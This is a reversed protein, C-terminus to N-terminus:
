LSYSSLSLSLQHTKWWRQSGALELGFCRHIVSRSWRHCAASITCPSQSLFIVHRACEVNQLGCVCAWFVFLSFFSSHCPCIVWPFLIFWDFASAMVWKEWFRETAGSAQPRIRGYFYSYCEFFIKSLRLRNSCCIASHSTDDELIPKIEVYWIVRRFRKMLKRRQIRQLSHHFRRLVQCYHLAASALLLFM